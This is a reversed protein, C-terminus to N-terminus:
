SLAWGSVTDAVHQVHRPSLGQHVPLVLTEGALMVADPFGRQTVDEPLDPWTWAGIGEDLLVSLLEDRVVGGGEVRVPLGWPVAGDPLGGFLPALRPLVRVEGELRMYNARRTASIEGSKSSLMAVIRRSFLDMGPARGPPASRLGREDSLSPALWRRLMGSGSAFVAWAAVERLAPVPCIGALGSDRRAPNSPSIARGSGAQGSRLRLASPGRHANVVLAAGSAVPMQKRFSFIAFDGDSGVPRGGAVSLFSHACDEILAVGREDCWRRATAADAPMGFYHVLVLAAPNDSADGANDAQTILSRARLKDFPGTGTEAEQTAGAIADGVSAWDPSMDPGLSYFRVERGTARVGEVAERCIFAPVLVPGPPLTEVAVTLADRGLRFLRVDAHPLALSASQWPPILSLALLAPSLLPEGSVNM